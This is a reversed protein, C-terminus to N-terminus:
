RIMPKKGSNDVQSGMLCVSLQIVMDVMSFRGLFVPKRQFSFRLCPLGGFRKCCSKPTRINGAIQGIKELQKLRNRPADSGASGLKPWRELEPLALAEAAGCATAECGAPGLTLTVTVPSWHDDLHSSFPILVYSGKHKPSCGPKKFIIHFSRFDTKSRKSINQPALFYPTEVVNRFFSKAIM